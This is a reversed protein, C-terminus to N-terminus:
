RQVFSPVDCSESGVNLDIVELLAHTTRFTDDVAIAAEAVGERYACRARSYQYSSEM